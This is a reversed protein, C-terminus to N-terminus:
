GAPAARCARCGWGLYAVSACSAASLPPPGGKIAKLLAPSRLGEHLFSNQCHFKPRRIESSGNTAWASRASSSLGSQAGSGVSDRSFFDAPSSLLLCRRGHPPQAPLLELEPCACMPNLGWTGFVSRPKQADARVSSVAPASFGDSCLLWCGLARNHHREGPKMVLSPPSRSKKVDEPRPGVLCCSRELCLVIKTRM